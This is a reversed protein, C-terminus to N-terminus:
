FEIYILKYKNISKIKCTYIYINLYILKILFKTEWYNNKKKKSNKFLM